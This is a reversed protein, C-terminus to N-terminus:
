TVPPRCGSCKTTSIPMGFDNLLAVARAMAIRIWMCALRGSNTPKSILLMSCVSRVSDSILPTDSVLIMFPVSVTFSRLRTLSACLAISPM